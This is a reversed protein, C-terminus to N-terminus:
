GFGKNVVSKMKRDLSTEKMHYNTQPKRKINTPKQMYEWLGDGFAFPNIGEPIEVSNQLFTYYTKQKLGETVEMGCDILEELIGRIRETEAFIVEINNDSRNTLATLGNAVAGYRLSSPTRCWMNMWEWYKTAITNSNPIEYHIVKLDEPRIIIEKEMDFKYGKIKSPDCEYKCLIPKLNKKNRIAKLEETKTDIYKDSPVYWTMETRYYRNNRFEEDYRGDTISRHTFFYAINENLSYSMGTGANQLYYLDGESKLGKRVMDTEKVSFGRYIYFKENKRICDWLKKHDQFSMADAIDKNFSKAKEKYEEELLETIITNDNDTCYETIKKGWVDNLEDCVSYTELKLITICLSCLLGDEELMKVQKYRNENSLPCICYKSFKEVIDTLSSFKDLCGQTYLQDHYVLERLIKQYNKIYFNSNKFVEELEEIWRSDGTLQTLQFEQASIRETLPKTEFRDLFLYIPNIKLLRDTPLDDAYKRADKIVKQKTKKDMPKPTDTASGGVMM